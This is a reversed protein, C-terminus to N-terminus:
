VQSALDEKDRKEEEIFKDSERCFDEILQLLTACNDLTNNPSANLFKRAKEQLDMFNTMNQSKNAAVNSPL